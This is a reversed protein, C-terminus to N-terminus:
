ALGPGTSPPTFGEKASLSAEVFAKADAVVQSSDGAASSPAASTSSAASSSAGGSGVSASGCATALLGAAAVVTVRRLAATRM